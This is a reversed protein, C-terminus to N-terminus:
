SHILNWVKLVAIQTKADRIEGSMVMDYLDKLPIKEVELFEDDDLKRDTFTIDEALYMGIKEGLIAPSPIM